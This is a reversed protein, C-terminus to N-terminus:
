TDDRKYICARHLKCRENEPECEPLSEKEGSVGMGKIASAIEFAKEVEERRGEIVMTTSGEAGFIGGMGIVAWDRITANHIICAHGLTVRDGIRTLEDPRAHIVCNDEVTCYDGIVITGYDGRIRAGPGIWCGQGLMVDGFVDASPHIYTGLGVQPLKGEPM